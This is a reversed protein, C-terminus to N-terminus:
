YVIKMWRRIKKNIYYRDFQVVESRFVFSHQWVSSWKRNILLTVRLIRSKVARMSVIRSLGAWFSLAMCAFLWTQYGCPLDTERSVIKETKKTETLRIQCVTNRQQSQIHPVSCLRPTKRVNNIMKLFYKSLNVRIVYLENDFTLQYTHM